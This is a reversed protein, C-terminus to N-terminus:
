SPVVGPRVDGIREVTVDAAPYREVGPDLAYHGQRVFVTTVREAWQEKVAALIRRKDDVLAYRQAPYRREVDHLEREKHIYILINGGAAEALGSREVKRPQFVADGDSFIVVPGRERLRTLTDLAGPFLREAFPYDILYSSVCLLHSDHPHQSRYRQLTGLYDAYGLEARLDEFLEFYQEARRQGVERDLFSRLDATVRDNDLLTNDVDVLSVLDAPTV